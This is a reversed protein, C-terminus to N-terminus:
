PRSFWSALLVVCALFGMAFGFLLPVVWPDGM